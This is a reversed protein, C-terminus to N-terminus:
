TKLRAISRLAFSNNVSRLPDIKELRLAPDAEHMALLLDQAAEPQCVGDLSYAGRLRNFSAIFSQTDLNAGGEPLLHLVDRLSAQQMWQLAQVMADSIAQATAPLRQFFASPAALCSSPMQKGLGLLTDQPARFDAVPVIEGRQELQVMLPDMYVLADIQGSRLAAQAGAASGVSVFGVDNSRLGAQRIAALAVTHTPSNLAIVGMKRGRVMKLSTDKAGALLRASLGISMMPTAGLQVFSQLQLARAPASLANELWTCVLDAQGLSVASIARGASQQDSITLELGYQSFYGKQQAVLLPLYPMSQPNSIALTVSRVEPKPSAAKAAAAKPAALADWASLGALLQLLRGGFQRRQM